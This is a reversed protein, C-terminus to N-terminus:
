DGQDQVKFEGLPSSGIGHSEWHPVLRLSVGNSPCGKGGNGTEGSTLWTNGYSSPNDGFWISGRPAKMPAAAATAAGRACINDEIREDQSDRYGPPREQQGARYCLLFSCTSRLADLFCHSRM